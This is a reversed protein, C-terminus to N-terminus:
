FPKQPLVADYSTTYSLLRSDAFQHISSPPRHITSPPHHIAHGGMIYEAMGGTLGRLGPVDAAAAVKAAVAAAAAAAAESVVPAAAAAVAAAEKKKKSFSFKKRPNLEAAAAAV